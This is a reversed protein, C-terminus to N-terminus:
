NERKKWNVSDEFEKKRDEDSVLPPKWINRLEKPAAESKELIIRESKANGASVDHVTNKPRNSPSALAMLLVVVVGWLGFRFCWKKYTAQKGALEVQGKEDTKGFERRIFQQGIYWVALALAIVAIINSGSAMMVNFAFNLFTEIM